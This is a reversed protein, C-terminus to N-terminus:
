FCARRLVFFSVTPLYPRNNWRPTVAACSKYNPFSDNAPTAAAEQELGDANVVLSRCCTACDRQRTAGAGCAVMTIAVM